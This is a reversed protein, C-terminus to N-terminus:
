PICQGNICRYQPPCCHADPPPCRDCCKPTLVDCEQSWPDCCDRGCPECPACGQSTCAQNKSCCHDGSATPCWRNKSPDCCGEM